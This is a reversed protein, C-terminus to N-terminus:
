INQISDLLWDNKAVYSLFIMIFLWAELGKTYWNGFLEMTEWNKDNKTKLKTSKKQLHKWAVHWLDFHNKKCFQFSVDFIM